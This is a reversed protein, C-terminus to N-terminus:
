SSGSPASGGVTAIRRGAGYSAASSTESLNPPSSTGSRTWRCCVRAKCIPPSGDVSRRTPSSISGPSRPSCSHRVVSLLHSYSPSRSRLEAQPSRGPAFTLFLFTLSAQLLVPPIGGIWLLLRWDHNGLHGFAIGLLIIASSFTTNIASALKGRLNPQFLDVYIGVVVPFSGGLFLGLVFRQLLLQPYTSVSVGAILLLGYGAMVVVLMTRRGLRDALQGITIAGLLAGAGQASYASGAQTLSLGLSQRLFPRLVDVHELGLRLLIETILLFGFAALRRPLPLDCLATSAPATQAPAFSAPPPDGGTPVAPSPDQLSSATAMSSRASKDIQM